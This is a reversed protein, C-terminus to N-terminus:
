LGVTFHYLACSHPDKINWLLKSRKVSFILEQREILYFTLCVYMLGLQARVEVAVAATQSALFQDIGARVANLRTQRYAEQQQATYAFL